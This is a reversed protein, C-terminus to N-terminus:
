GTSDGSPSAPAAKAPATAARSEVPKAITETKATAETKVSSDSKVDAAPADSTAPKDDTKPAAASKSGNRFDTVYWGSGKLKFGAASVKKVLTEAHCEPCVVLRPESLKQLAELEHGCASCRYEYIPM